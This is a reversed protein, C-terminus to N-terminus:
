FRHSPHVIAYAVFRPRSSVSLPLIFPAPPFGLLLETDAYGRLDAVFTDVVDYAVTQFQVANTAPTELLHVPATELLMRLRTRILLV